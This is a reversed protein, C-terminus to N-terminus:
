VANALIWSVYSSVRAYVGPMGNGCEAAGWSVVGHLGGNHVLPGGSDGRCADQGVPNRTCITLNSVIKSAGSWANYCEEFSIIQTNLFQLIEPSEGDTELHGWGSVVADGSQAAHAAIPMPQVAANYTIYPSVRLLNIDNEFTDDNYNPHNIVRIVEHTVGGNNLFISGLVVFKSRDRDVDCHAASLIYCNNIITGGCFHGMNADRLSAQYPFQNPAADEGGVIRGPYNDPVKIWGLVSVAFGITILVTLRFM